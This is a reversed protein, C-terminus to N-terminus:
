LAGCADASLDLDRRVLMPPFSDLCAIKANPLHPTRFRPKSSCAHFWVVDHYGILTNNPLLYWGWGDGWRHYNGVTIGCALRAVVLFSQGPLPTFELQTVESTPVHKWTSESVDYVKIMSVTTSDGGGSEPSKRPAKLGALLEVIDSGMRPFSQPSWGPHEAQYDQVFSSTCSLVCSLAAITGIRIIWGQM